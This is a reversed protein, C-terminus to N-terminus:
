YFDDEDVADEETSEDDVIDALQCGTFIKEPVEVKLQILEWESWLHCGERYVTSLQLLPTAPYNEKLLQYPIEMNDGDYFEIKSHNVKIKLCQRDAHLTSLKITPIYEKEIQILCPEATKEPYWQKANDYIESIVLYDSNRVLELFEKNRRSKMDFVLDVYYDDGCKVIDSGLLMMPGRLLFSKSNYKINAKTIGNATKYLKDFQIKDLEVSSVTNIKLKSSM